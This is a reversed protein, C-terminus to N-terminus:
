CCANHMHRNAARVASIVLFMNQPNVTHKVKWLTSSLETTLTDNRLTAKHVFSWLSHTEMIYKRGEDLSLVDRKM